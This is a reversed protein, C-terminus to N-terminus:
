SSFPKNGRQGPELRGQEVQLMHKKPVGERFFISCRTRLGVPHAELSADEGFGERRRRGGQGKSCADGGQWEFAGTGDKHGERDCEGDAKSHGDSADEAAGQQASGCATRLLPATCGKTQRGARASKFQTRQEAASCIHERHHLAATGTCRKSPAVSTPHLMELGAASAQRSCVGSSSSSSLLTLCESDRRPVASVPPPLSCWGHQRSGLLRWGPRWPVALRKWM